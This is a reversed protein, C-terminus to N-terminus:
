TLFRLDFRSVIKRLQRAPVPKLSWDSEHSTSTVLSKKGKMRFRDMDLM